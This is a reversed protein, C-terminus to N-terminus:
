KRKRFLWCIEVIIDEIITTTVPLDNEKNM